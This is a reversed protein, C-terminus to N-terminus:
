RGCISEEAVTPRSKEVRTQTVSGFNNAKRVVGDYHAQMRDSAKNDGDGHLKTKNWTDVKAKIKSYDVKQNRIKVRSEKPNHISKSWTSTKSKVARLNPIRDIAVQKKNVPNVKGKKDTAKSAVICDARLKVLKRSDVDDQSPSLHKDEVEMIKVSDAANQSLAACYNKVKTFIKVSAMENQFQADREYYVKMREKMTYKEKQFKNHRENVVKMINVFDVEGNHIQGLSEELKQM